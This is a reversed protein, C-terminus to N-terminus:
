LDCGGENFLKTAVDMVQEIRTLADELQEKVIEVKGWDKELLASSLMQDAGDLLSHVTYKSM